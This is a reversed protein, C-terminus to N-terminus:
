EPNATTHYTQSSQASLIQRVQDIIYNTRESFKALDELSLHAKKIRNKHVLDKKVNGDIDILQLTGFPCINVVKFPGLFETEFKCSNGKALFVADGIDYDVPTVTKDFYIKRRLANLKARELAAARMQDLAELEQLRFELVQEQNNEDFLIPRRIDGPLVPDKGYVLRFPSENSSAQKVIRCTFLVQDIYSDWTTSNDAVLKTIASKITGNLKEVMGNTRPHYASTKLHKTKLLSLYEELMHSLFQSGRDTLIEIPCGFRLVIEEYIFTAVNEASAIKLPRAIPWKTANDIAVLLWKNGKETEPLPGM